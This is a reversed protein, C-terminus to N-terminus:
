KIKEVPKIFVPGILGSEQPLWSSADFLGNKRNRPLRSPFNTNYFKKWEVNNRDLWAIRNAALNSVTIELRNVKKLQQKSVIVTFEPGILGAIRTGNLSVSASQCVKGLDIIWTDAKGKPKPFDISYRATGSFNKVDEGELLTWSGTQDIEGAMPLSPGGEIFELNWSGEIPHGPGEPQYFIYKPGSLRLQETVMVMSEHPEIVAFVEANGSKGQRIKGYGLGASMPNFIAVTRAKVSLPIWGEYREDSSNLVFYCYGENIRRRNYQLGQDAMQERKVGAMELMRGLDSGMLFRGSGIEAETIDRDGTDHFEMQDILYRYIENNYQYNGWGAVKEPLNGYIVVTAGKEALNYLKNFTLVPIYKCGPLIITNYLADVETMVLSGTNSANKLQLDSVFDFSYGQEQIFDAAKRFPSDNFRASIGDFHDLMMNNYDSYRDSAPFYLLINNDPKGSQLFSQVRTVYSNLVPFDKWITNQPSFEVAAYFQFGPWPEDPPSYCTGHYVIHNVGAIFYNDVNNKVDSLSSSFHEGLWTSAEASALRKATVNAASSAFKARMLETGETEPIDTAAYLDLINGPSGHAQNRTIKGQKHAWDTWTKTFADLMLDSITQRYDCLVGANKEPTDEQFLAPLNERLDYGRRKSFEKFLDPTWDAQGRADDVEYSDNFYGRLYSIDYSKFAGTFHNLYNESATSSFHDIVYGEGGPGAREVMKGHWGQFVGYLNWRGAPARWKLRGELDISDTIDLIEGNDSYAMLVQLPLSKEYRVQDIALLQLSDNLYVPDRLSNIDPRFTGNYRIYPEQVCAVPEDLSEGEELSYVRLLVYKSADDNTVWPGGFPWSSSNALDIGLGLKEAEHLTYSFMEMWDDSLFRIFKDEQGKVGYIATLELGGLGAKWYEALVHKLDNENVISGPWWWRAWPKSEQTIQPWSLQASINITIALILLFVFLRRQM